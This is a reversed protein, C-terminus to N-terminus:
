ASPALRSNWHKIGATTACCYFTPMAPCGTVRRVQSRPCGPIAHLGLVAFHLVSPQGQWLVAEAISFQHQGCSGRCRPSCWATARTTQQLGGPDSRILCDSVADETLTECSSSGQVHHQGHQLAAGRRFLARICGHLAGYAADKQLKLGHKKALWRHVM